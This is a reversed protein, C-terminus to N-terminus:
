EAWVVPAKRKVEVRQQLRRVIEILGSSSCTSTQSDTKMKAKIKVKGKWRM